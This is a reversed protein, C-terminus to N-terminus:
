PEGDIVHDSLMTKSLVMSNFVAPTVRVLRYRLQSPGAEGVTLMVARGGGSVRAGEDASVAVGVGTTAAPTAPAAAPSGTAVALEAEARDVFILRGPPVLVQGPEFWPVESRQMVAMVKRVIPESVAAARIRAEMDLHGALAAQQAAATLASAAHLPAGPQGSAEEVPRLPQMVTSYEDSLQMGVPTAVLPTGTAQGPSPPPAPEVGGASPPQDERVTRGDAATEGKAVVGGCCGCCGAVPVSPQASRAAAMNDALQQLSVLTLRPVQAPTVALRWQLQRARARACWQCHTSM